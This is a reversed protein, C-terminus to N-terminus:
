SPGAPARTRRLASSAGRAGSRRIGAARGRRRPRAVRPGRQLEAPRVMKALHVALLAAQGHEVDERLVHAVRDPHEPLAGREGDHDVSESASPMPALVASKLRTSLRSSRESGTRVGSRM